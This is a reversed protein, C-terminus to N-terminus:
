SWLVNDHDEIDDFDDQDDVLWPLPFRESAIFTTGNNSQKWGIVVNCRWYHGPQNPLVTVVPGFSIDGEWGLKRALEQAKAWLPPWESVRHIEVDSEDDDPAVFLDAPRHWGSWYDIPAVSYLYM